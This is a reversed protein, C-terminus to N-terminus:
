ARSLVGSIRARLAQFREERSAGPGTDALSSYPMRAPAARGIDRLRELAPSLPVPVSAAGGAWGSEPTPAADWRTAARKPLAPSPAPLFSRPQPVHASSSDYSARAWGTHIPADTLSEADSAWDPHAAGADVADVADAADAADAVADRTWRPAALPHAGAANSGGASANSSPSRPRRPASDFLAISPLPSLGSTRAWAVSPAASPPTAGRQGSGSLGESHRGSRTAYRVSAASRTAADSVAPRPALPTALAPAPVAQSRGEALAAPSPPATATAAAAAARDTRAGKSTAGQSPAVSGEAVSVPVADADDAAPDASEDAQTAADATPRIQTAAERTSPAADPEAAAGFPPEAVSLSQPRTPTAAGGQAEDDHEEAEAEEEEEHKAKAKPELEPEARDAAQSAGETLDQRSTSTGASSGLRAPTRAREPEAWHRDQAQALAEGGPEQAATPQVDSRPSALPRRGSAGSSRRLMGELRAEAARLKHEGTWGPTAPAAAAAAIAAGFASSSSSPSADRAAAHTESWPAYVSADDWAADLPPEAPTAQSARTVPVATAAAPTAAAGRDLAASCAGAAPGRVASPVSSAEATPAASAAQAPPAASSPSSSSPPALSAPAPLSPPAARTVAPALRRPASSGADNGSAPDARSSHHQFSEPEARRGALGSDSDGDSDAGAGASAAEGAAGPTRGRCAHLDAEAADWRGQRRLRTRRVAGGVARLLRSPDSPLPWAESAGSAAAVPQAVRRAPGRQPPSPPSGEEASGGTRPPSGLSVDDFDLHRRPLASVRRHRDRGGPLATAGVSLPRSHRPPRVSGEAAAAAATASAASRAAAPAPRASRRTRPASAASRRRSASPRAAARVTATSPPGPASSPAAAGSRRRPRATAASLAHVARKSPSGRSSVLHMGREVTPAGGAAQWAELASLHPQAAATAGAQRGSLAKVQAIRRAVEIRALPNHPSVASLKRLLQAAGHFSSSRPTPRAIPQRCRRANLLRRCAPVKLPPVAVSAGGSSAALCLRHM